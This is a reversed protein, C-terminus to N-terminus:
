GLLVPFGLWDLAASHHMTFAGKSGPEDMGLRKAELRSRPLHGLAEEPARPHYQDRSIM